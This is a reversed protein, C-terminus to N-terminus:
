FAFCDCGLEWMGGGGFIRRHRRLNPRHGALLAISVPQLQVIATKGFATPACLIGDDYDGIGAVADEQHSHLRGQFSVEIPTGTYRQDRIDARIKHDAFFATAETM